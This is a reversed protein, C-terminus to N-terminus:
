EQERAKKGNVTMSMEMQSSIFDMDKEKQKRGNGTILQKMKGSATATAKDITMKLSALTPWVMGPFTSQEMAKGKKTKGNDGTPTAVPSNLKVSVMWDAAIIHELIKKGTMWM